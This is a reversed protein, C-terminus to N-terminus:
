VLPPFHRRALQGMSDAALQTVNASIVSLAELATRPDVQDSKIAQAFRSRGEEATPVDQRLLNSVVARERAEVAAGYRECNRLYKLTKAADKAATAASGPGVAPLLVARMDDIVLNFLKTHDSPPADLRGAEALIWGEAAAIAEVLLRRNLANSVISNGSLGSVNRLRIIVIRMSVFVRHYAIRERDVATGAEAEYAKLLSPMDPVPEMVSRFSVWALDEMPDGWHSLEWDILATLRGDKFLFNGPGADGHVLVAPGDYTPLNRRLWKLAFEIHPDQQGTERYMAEWLELERVVAERVSGAVGLSPIPMAIPSLRHLRALSQVFQQAIAQREGMHSLDRYRADGEAFETVITQTQPHRLILAPAPIGMGSLAAYVEAERWPSFPEVGKAAHVQHRLFLKKASGDAFRVELGWGRCRNGGSALSSAVIQAQLGDEAWAKLSAPLADNETRHPNVIAVSGSL